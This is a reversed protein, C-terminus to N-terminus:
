CVFLCVCSERSAGYDAALWNRGDVRYHSRVRDRSLLCQEDVRLESATNYPELLLLGVMQEIEQVLVDSKTRVQLSTQLPLLVRHNHPVIPDSCVGRNQVPLITLPTM